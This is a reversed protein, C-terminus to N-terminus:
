LFPSACFQKETIRQWSRYKQRSELVLVKWQENKLLNIKKICQFKKFYRIIFTRTSYFQM